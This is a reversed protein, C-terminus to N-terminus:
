NNIMFQQPNILEIMIMKDLFLLTFWLASFGIAKFVVDKHDIKFKRYIFVDCLVTVFLFVLIVALSGYITGQILNYYDSTMFQFLSFTPTKKVEGSAVITEAVVTPEPEEEPMTEEGSVAEEEVVEEPAEEEVIIPAEEPPAEETPPEIAPLPEAKPKGFFQVVLSTDKGQFSGKLVAIGMEQYNPNLINKQHSPSDMWADHVQESELFGIALNEGAAAYSYGSRELWYWPTIGGPSYHAFYNNELMDKAKLYAAQDLAKNEKLPQFGLDERSANALEFLGIKTIDAFFTTRPLYFLFPVLLLKLLLLILAYHLLFKSNLFRPKYKNLQCPVFISKIKCFFGKDM